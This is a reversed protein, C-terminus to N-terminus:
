LLCLTKIHARMSCYNYHSHGCPILLTIEFCDHSKVRHVFLSDLISFSCKFKGLCVALSPLYWYARNESICWSKIELCNRLCHVNLEGACTGLLPKCSLQIMGCWDVVNGTRMTYNWCSGQGLKWNRNFSGYPTKNRFACAFFWRSHDKLGM